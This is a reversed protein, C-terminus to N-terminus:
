TLSTGGVALVNPSVAPYIPPAGSDGSAAVFTVDPNKYGKTNTASYPQFYSDYSTEGSFDNDGWSMSLVSVGSQSAATQVATFLSLNAASNAEVLVINAGPAITHAWEVDLAEEVAWDSNNSPTKVGTSTGNTSLVTGSQNMVTLNPNALGYEQDFTVLNSYIDPDNYADVIAITQGSGNGQVTGNSTTFTIQNFGYAAEIQSPSFGPPPSAPPSLLHHGESAATAAQQTSDIIYFPTATSLLERKELWELSPLVHPPKLRRNQRVTKNVSGFRWRRWLATFM